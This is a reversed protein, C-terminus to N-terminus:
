TPNARCRVIQKGDHQGEGNELMWDSPNVCVDDMQRPRSELRVSYAGVREEKGVFM